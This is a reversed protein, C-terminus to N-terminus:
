KMIAKITGTLGKAIKAVAEGGKVKILCAAFLGSIMSTALDSLEKVFVAFGVLVMALVFYILNDIEDALISLILEKM